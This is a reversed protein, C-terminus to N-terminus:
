MDAEIYKCATIAKLNLLRLFQVAFMDRAGNTMPLLLMQPSSDSSDHHTMIVSVQRVFGKIIHSAKGKEFPLLDDSFM